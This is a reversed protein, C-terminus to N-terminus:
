QPAPVLRLGARRQPHRPAEGPAELSAPILKLFTSMRLVLNPNCTLHPSHCSGPAVDVGRCHVPRLTSTHACVLVSCVRVRVGLEAGHTPFDPHQPPFVSGGRSPHSGRTGSTTLPCIFTDRLGPCGRPGGERGRDGSHAAASGGVSSGTLCVAQGSLGRPGPQGGWEQMEHVPKFIVCLRSNCFAGLTNIAGSAREQPGPHLYPSATGGPPRGLLGSCTWTVTM